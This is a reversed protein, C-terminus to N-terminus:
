RLIRFVTRTRVDWKRCGTGNTVDLKRLIRFVTRKRVRNGADLGM